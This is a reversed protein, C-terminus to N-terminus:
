AAIAYEGGLNERYTLPKKDGREKASVKGLARVEGNPLIEIATDEDSQLIAELQAITPRKPLKARAM